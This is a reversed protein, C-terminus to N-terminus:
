SALNSQLMSVKKKSNIDSLTQSRYDFLDNDLANLSFIKTNYKILINTGKTIMKDLITSRDCSTWAGDTFVLM